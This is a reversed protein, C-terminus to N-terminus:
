MIIEHCKGMYNTIKKWENEDYYFACNLTNKSYDPYKNRFIKIATFLSDAVVILYGNQFPFHEASGFTFYFNHM